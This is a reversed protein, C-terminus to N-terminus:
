APAAAPAAEAAPAAAAGAFKSAVGVKELMYALVAKIEDESLGSNGGKAPMNPPLGNLAGALLVDEGKAIRPAWGDKDGLKPANLVGASHCATCVSNYIEEGSMAKKAVAQAPLADGTNVRGVPKIREDILAKQAESLEAKGSPMVMWAYWFTAVFAITMIAASYLLMNRASTREAPTNQQTV